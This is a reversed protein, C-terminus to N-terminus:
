LSIEEVFREGSLAPLPMTVEVNVPLYKGPYECWKRPSILIGLVKM